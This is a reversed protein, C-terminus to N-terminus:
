KRQHLAPISKNPIRSQKFNDDALTIKRASEKQQGACVELTAPSMWPLM